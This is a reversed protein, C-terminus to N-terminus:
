IRRASFITVIIVNKRKKPPKVTHEVNESIDSNPEFTIHNTDFDHLM